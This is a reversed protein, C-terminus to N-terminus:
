APKDPHTALGRDPEEMGRGLEARHLNDLMLFAAQALRIQEPGDPLQAAEELWALAMQRVESRSMGVPLFYNDLTVLKM